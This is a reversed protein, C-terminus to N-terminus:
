FAEAARQRENMMEAAIEIRRREEMEEAEEMEWISVIPFFKTFLVYLLIIGAASAALLAVACMVVVLSPTRSVVLCTGQVTTAVAAVYLVAQQKKGDRKIASAM